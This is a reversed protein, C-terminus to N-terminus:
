DDYDRYRLQKCKNCLSSFENYLNLNNSAKYINHAHTKQKIIYILEKSFWIPYKINHRNLKPIFSDIVYNIQSYFFDLNDNVDNDQFHKNWDIFGLYSIISIYDGSNWNIIKNNFPFIEYHSIKFNINISPHLPDIPVIPNSINEIDILHSNSIVLDLTVNNINKTNNFQSFNFYSLKNSFYSIANSVKASPLNYDEVLIFTAISNKLYLSEVSNFYTDFINQDSRVPIYVSGFIVSQNHLKILVFLIELNNNQIILPKSPFSKRIAILVGGSRTVQNLIEIM